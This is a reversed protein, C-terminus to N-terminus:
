QNRQFWPLDARPDSSAQAALVAWWLYLERNLAPDSWLAVSVPLQLRQTNLCPLALARHSGAVKQLFGRAYFYPRPASAIIQIGGCGGLA